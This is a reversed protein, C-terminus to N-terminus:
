FNYFYIYPQRLIVRFRCLTRLSIYRVEDHSLKPRLVAESLLSIVPDLSKTYASAAYILTDRYYFFLNCM